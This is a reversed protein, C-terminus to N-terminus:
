SALHEQAHQPALVVQSAKLFRNPYTGLKSSATLSYHLSSCHISRRAGTTLMKNGKSKRNTHVHTITALASPSNHAILDSM